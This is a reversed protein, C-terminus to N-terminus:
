DSPSSMPSWSLSSTTYSMRTSFGVVRATPRGLIRHEWAGVWAALRGEPWRLWGVLIRRWATLYYPYIAKYEQMGGLGGLWQKSARM